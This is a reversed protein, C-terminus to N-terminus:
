QWELNWKFNSSDQRWALPEWFAKKKMESCMWPGGFGMPIPWNIFMGANMVKWSLSLCGWNPDLLQLRSKKTPLLLNQCSSFFPSKKRACWSWSICPARMEVAQLREFAYNRITYRNGRESSNVLAWKNMLYHKQVMSWSLGIRCTARNM